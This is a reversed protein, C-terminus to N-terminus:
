VVSDEEGRMRPRTLLEVAAPTVIPKIRPDPEAHAMLANSRGSCTEFQPHRTGNMALTNKQMTPHSKRLPNCSVASPRFAVCIRGGRMDETIASQFDMSCVKPM